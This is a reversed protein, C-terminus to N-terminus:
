LRMTVSLFALAFQGALLNNYRDSRTPTIRSCATNCSVQLTRHHPLWRPTWRLADSAGAICAAIKMSINGYFSVPELAARSLRAPPSQKPRSIYYAFTDRQRLVASSACKTLFEARIPLSALRYGYEHGASVRPLRRPRIRTRGSDAPPRCSIRASQPIGIKV